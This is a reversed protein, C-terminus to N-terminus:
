VKRKKRPSTDKQGVKRGRKDGLKVEPMWIKWFEIPLKINEISIASHFLNAIDNINM